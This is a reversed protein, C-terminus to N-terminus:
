RIRPLWYDAERRYHAIAVIYIEDPRLVYVVYYPFGEISLRRAGGTTRKGSSPFQLLYDFKEQAAALMRFGYGERQEEIYRGAERLERSAACHLRARM